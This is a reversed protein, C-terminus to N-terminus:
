LSVFADAGHPRAIVSPSMRVNCEQDFRRSRVFFLYRIVLLLGGFAFSFV